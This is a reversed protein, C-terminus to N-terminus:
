VGTIVDKALRDGEGKGEAQGVSTANVGVARVATLLVKPAQYGSSTVRVHRGGRIKGGAKGVLLYPHDVYNHRGANAHASTALILTNDLVNGGGEKQQRLQDALYACNKMIFKTIARMGSGTASDHSLQHHEESVKVEWYVAASQTASWEYSFVRSLDCALAVALLQSMLKSKAEKLEKSTGDGFSSTTPRDPKSCTAPAGKARAQLQREIARLGDLHQEMRRQDSKGLKRELSKADGMVADLMSKEFATATALVSSSRSSGSAGSVGSFLRDFLKQPSPEHRNYATGGRLWSSNSRYPGKRCIGIAVHDFRAKGKWADMVISDVSPEPHHQGRYTGVCKGSCVALDHSSSLAIGRAPIHGPSSGKHKTGSIVTLYSKLQSFPQLSDPLSWSTGTAKPVWADQVVGCGWYFVGFRKPLTGGAALATGNDDLMADLLPLGVSVAAGGLLGRLFTRRQLHQPQVSRILKQRSRAM